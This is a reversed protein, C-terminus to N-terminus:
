TRWSHKRRNSDSKRAVSSRSSRPLNAGLGHLIERLDRFSELFLLRAPASIPARSDQILLRHRKVQKNGTKSIQIGHRRRNYNTGANQGDSDTERTNKCAQGNRSLGYARVLADGGKLVFDADQVWAVVELTLGLAASRRRSTPFLPQCGFSSLRWARAKWYAGYRNLTSM